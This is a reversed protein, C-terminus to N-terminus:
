TSPGLTRAEALQIIQKVVGADIPKLVHHDFGAALARARDEPDAWGSIAALFLPRAGYLDRLRRAVDFGSIDPLGLDILGIDPGFTGAVEIAQAGSSACACEHGFSVLLRSVVGPIDPYDDVILV